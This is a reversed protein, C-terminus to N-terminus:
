DGIYNVTSKIYPKENAVLHKPTYDTFDSPPIYSFTHLQKNQKKIEQLSALSLVQILGVM